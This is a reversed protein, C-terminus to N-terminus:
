KTFIEHFICILIYNLSYLSIDQVYNWTLSWAWSFVEMRSMQIEITKELIGKEINEISLFDVRKM